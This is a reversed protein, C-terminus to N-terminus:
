IGLAQVWLSIIGLTSVDILEGTTSDIFKCVFVGTDRDYSGVKVMVKYTNVKDPALSASFIPASQARSTGNPTPITLTLTSSAKLLSVAVRDFGINSFSSNVAVSGAEGGNITFLAMGYVRAVPLRSNEVEIHVDAILCEGLHGTYQGIAIQIYDDVKVDDNVVHSIKYTEWNGSTITKNVASEGATPDDISVACTGSIVKAKFSVTVLEGRFAPIRKYIYGRDNTGSTTINVKNDDLITVNSQTDETIAWDKVWSSGIATGM